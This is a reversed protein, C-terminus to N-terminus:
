ISREVFGNATTVRLTLNGEFGAPILGYIQNPSAYLLQIPVGNITVVTGAIDTQPTPGCAFGEEAALARGMIRITAGAVPGPKLTLPPAKPDDSFAPTPAISYNDLEAGDHRISRIGIRTGQVEIRLYHYASRAFAVIPLTPVPYLIAGGGGSTFYNTGVGAAVFGSKRMPMSRQYSHEHGSFVLQVGYTDFLPVMYTRAWTSERDNVNNGTAFPPYHFYVVRWFQRTTRLDNELWRLMPGNATVARNLAQHADISVFHVNGWDFSYYRGADAAPVGETPVSHIALYPAANPVDYDHNGPSPFFPTSCMTPAYYNFYNRQYYEFSGQPYVLDGTHIVLAAKEASIRQAILAQADSLPDGWGSDGLVLFKFPGAGATRFKTEGASGIDQGDVMVNYSFETNPTLGRLEAQYHYYNALLGTETRSYLRRTAAAYDYNVGDRTYRVVGFGPEFTAWLISARDNRVNQIYPFRSVTFIPDPPDDPGANSQQAVTGIKQQSAVAGLAALFTRRNM